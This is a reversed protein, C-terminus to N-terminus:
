AHSAVKLGRYVRWQALAVFLYAFLETCEELVQLSAHSWGTYIPLAVHGEASASYVAAVMALVVELVPLSARQYLAVLTRWQRTALFVVCTFALALAAVGTILPKHALQKSSSFVPGTHADWALPELLVAGWSLERLTLILWIPAVMWWFWRLQTPGAQRGWWLAMCGSALLAIVQANEFFGNEWGFEVPLSHAIPYALVLGLLLLARASWVSLPINIKQMATMIKDCRSEQM